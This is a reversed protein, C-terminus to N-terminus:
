QVKDPTHNSMGTIHFNPSIKVDVLTFWILGVCMIAAAFFDDIGYRKGQILIGGM